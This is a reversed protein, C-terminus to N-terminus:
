AKFYNLPVKLYAIGNPEASPLHGAQLNIQMAPLMLKPMSLQADRQQRMAVFDAKRTQANLHINHQKQTQIDTQCQYHQRGVPLYDHCLFMRMTEPLQYIKQVSDFLQGANGQPFDCRASGYDPMFLTDGVFISDGIVYSLCAPTHGPTALSYASLEGIKFAEGDKFLYDFSQQANLSKMDFDYIPAFSAQVQSIQESIAVQGGLQQKLYQAATLHDAHVHTELIWSLKLQLRKIYAIIQDAQTTQTSATVPDYDLVPDIVACVKHMPDSVVYSFTHSIPDFFEQVQAADSM